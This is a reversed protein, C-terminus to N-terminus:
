RSAGQPTGAPRAAPPQNPDVPQDPGPQTSGARADRAQFAAQLEALGAAPFSFCEAAGPFDRQEVDRVYGSLAERLLNGAAAYPRVFSPPPRNGLGLLDHFVLVQGDCGPGAGIGIVPIPLEAAIRAAVEQPVAELVLLSIGAAVLAQAEDLLDLAAQLQVGQRRYGGYAHVHQPLLGLHGCVPIGTQVMARIQPVFARGGELKVANMGGQQLFRGANRVAEAVDAQYSMFPMDGILFSQHNGRAVAQCHHIMEDMGVQLTSEYGLVVMALSDGVLVCDVGAEACLRSQAADYATVMTIPVSRDKKDLLSRITVPKRPAQPIVPAASAYPAADAAAPSRSDPRAPHRPLPPTRNM